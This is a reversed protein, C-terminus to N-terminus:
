ILMAKDLGRLMLFIQFAARGIKHQGRGPLCRVVQMRAGQKAGQKVFIIDTGHAGVGKNQM